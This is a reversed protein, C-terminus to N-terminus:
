ENNMNKYVHERPSYAPIKSNSGPGDTQCNLGTHIANCGAAQCNKPKINEQQWLTMSAETFILAVYPCTLCASFFLSSM